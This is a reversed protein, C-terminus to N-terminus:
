TSNTKTSHKFHFEPQWFEGAFKEKAEGNSQCLLLGNGLQELDKCHILGPVCGSMHFNTVKM